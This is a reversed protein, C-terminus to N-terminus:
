SRRFPAASARRGAWASPNEPPARRTRRGSEPIAPFQGGWYTVAATNRKARGAAGGRRQAAMRAAVHWLARPVGQQFALPRQLGLPLRDRFHEIAASEPRAAGRRVGQAS